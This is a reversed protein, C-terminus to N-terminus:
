LKSGKKTGKHSQTLFFSQNLHTFDYDHRVRLCL